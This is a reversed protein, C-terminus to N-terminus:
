GSFCYTGVGYVGIITMVALVNEVKSVKSVEPETRQKVQDEHKKVSELVSREADEIMERRMKRHDYELKSGSFDDLAEVELAERKLRILDLFEANSIGRSGGGNEVLLEERICQRVVEKRYDKNALRPELQLAQKREEFVPPYTGAVGDRSRPALKFKAKAHVGKRPKIYWRQRLVNRPCSTSFFRDEIVRGYLARPAFTKSLPSHKSLLTPIQQQRLLPLTM